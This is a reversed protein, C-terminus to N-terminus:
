LRTSLHPFSPFIQCSDSSAPCALTIERPMGGDVKMMVRVANVAECRMSSALYVMTGESGGRMCWGGGCMERKRAAGRRTSRSRVADVM